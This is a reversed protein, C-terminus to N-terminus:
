VYPTTPLTLHTYSVAVTGPQITLSVDGYGGINCHGAEVVYTLDDAYWTNHDIFKCPTALVFGNLDNDNAQNGALYPDLSDVRYIPSANDTFTNGIISPRCPAISHNCSHLRIAENPHDTFTNDSIVADSQRLVLGRTANHQVTSYSLAFTSTSVCLAGSVCWDGARSANGGYEIVTHELVSYESQDRFDIMGWDGAAPVAQNSTFRILATETGLSDLTGKIILAYNGDQRKYM